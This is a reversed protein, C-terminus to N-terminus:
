NNNAGQTIWALMLGEINSPNAEKGLPMAPTLKGTLRMYVISNAPETKNIFSGGILSNYASAATLNPAHGGSVHCGSLACDTSLIPIIDKSFIVTKTVTQAAKPITVTTNKQCGIMVIIIVIVILAILFVKTSTSM